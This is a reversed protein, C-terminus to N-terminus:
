RMTGKRRRLAALLPIVAALEFGLGCGTGENNRKPNGICNGDPTGGASGGDWDIDGDGDDDLDNDCRSGELLSLASACAPDEPFDVDGDGDNDIGDQCEPLLYYATYGTPTQPAVINHSAAGGDSWFQFTRSIGGPGVQPSPASISQASGVIVKRVFPAPVLEPGIGLSFGQPYSSFTLDVTAPHVEVSASATLLAGSEPPGFAVFDDNMSLWQAQMWDASRAIPAIRVEDMRGAWADAIEGGLLLPQNGAILPTVTADTTADVGDLYVRGVSGNITAGVWHWGTDFNAGTARAFDAGSGRATMHDDAAHYDLAYGEAAGDSPKKTVIRRVADLDPDNNTVWAEITLAGTIRLTAGNGGTINAAGNFRRSSGFKGATILTGGNLGTNGNGTSDTLTGGLHWVASYGLWTAAANQAAPATPNGYYMWIHDAASGGDIRPVRVWVTSVGAENWTDVQYPLVTTGDADLFRLDAGSTGILGYDVKTPDLSVLVPFGDLNESQGANAFTLRQRRTWAADWWGEAGLDTASLEIELFSPYEHDPAAFDGEAVGPFDQVPHTHCEVLTTCHHILVSWSLQEPPLLGDQPDIARGEFHIPDGVKWLLAPSPSLIEVVPPSNDATIVIAAVASGASGATVRVRVIHAGPTDFVHSPAVGTADDYQGDADFDWAYTLPIGNPHSSGSADFDVALPAPGNTPDAAVMATPPVAVPFFEVRWIKGNDFDAYFVDGEPGIQVDVIRGASNSVFPMRLAPDPNPGAGKPIVWICQRSSDAWFYAGDYTAPYDGGQYFASGTASSSGTGCLEGPVVKAAHSYAYFPATLVSEAGGGLATDNDAYLNECIALNTGDYGAQRQNTGGGGGYAGEYCPWGFNEVVGDTPSVIRNIEEWSDWGVESIWIENTGPRSAMRFPNRLGHAIIYDDEPDANGALPNSPPVQAGAAVNSVDIRLVTGSLALPDGATLIDQSRLAGGEATPPTPLAGGPDGCPNVPSGDQGYDVFNFSAGDGSTAYLMGDPGFALDGTSHSPYQQCWRGTLLPVEIGAMTVPNIDIRSLRGNIVCGDGTPGPPSPCPDSTAGASGWRPVTGDTKVDYSYFVYVYPRTPFQPDVALGLLGRDWFNHVPTRLDVVTTPTPDSLGDFAHVLGSKEAIFIQGNPAFRVATPNVLGTIAESEQFGDPLVSAGALCPLTAVALFALVSRLAVRM